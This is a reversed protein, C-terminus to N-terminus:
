FPWMILPVHRRMVTGRYMDIDIELVEVRIEDGETLKEAIRGQVADPIHSMHLLGYFGGLDVFAGYAVVNSVRGRIRDGVNM